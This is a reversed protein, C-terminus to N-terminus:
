LSQKQGPIAPWRHIEGRERTHLVTQSFSHTSAHRAFLISLASALALAGHSFAHEECHLHVELGRVFNRPGPQPYPGIVPHCRIERIGDIERRLLPDGIRAYLSLVDRLATSGGTTENLSLYNLQLHNVLRWAIEGDHPEYRPASPGGLLRVEDVPAGTSLTFSTRRDKALLLPLDRNTCLGDVVLQQNDALPESLTLFAETGV